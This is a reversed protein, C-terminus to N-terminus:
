ARSAAVMIAAPKSGSTPAAVTSRPAPQPQRPEVTFGKATPAATSERRPTPMSTLWAMMMPRPAMRHIAVVATEM